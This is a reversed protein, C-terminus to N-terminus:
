SPFYAYRFGYCNRLCLYDAMGRKVINKLLKNSFPQFWLM